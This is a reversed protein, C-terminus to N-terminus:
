NDYKVIFTMDTNPSIMIPKALKAVMLLENEDNYLGITTVYPNFISGTAFDRLSGSAYSTVLTPNYSLNFESEKVICRVENEYITHANKFSITKGETELYSYNGPGSVVTITTGNLVDVFQGVDNISTTVPQNNSNTYYFTTDGTRQGSLYVTSSNISTYVLYNPDTIVAIGHAYFINGIPINGAITELLNGNGDDIINVLSSSLNFTYPLIKSGFIDKDISIVGIQQSSSTPFSKILLPNANYNFYSATPRQQSASTYTFVDFMLSSTNLSDTYSQYFLHNISSYILSQYQGNFTISGTTNFSENTGECYVISSSDFASSSNFTFTWQKNATYSVTTIDAKSLKKFASM